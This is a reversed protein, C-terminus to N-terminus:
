TQEEEKINEAFKKGAELFIDLQERLKKDLLVKKTIDEAISIVVKKSIEIDTLGSLNHHKPLILNEKTSKAKNQVGRQQRKRSAPAITSERFGAYECLKLFAPVATRAVRDSVKYQSRFEDHLQDASLNYPEELEFLKKYANQIVERFGAQRKDESKLQVKELLNTGNGNEDILGLFRLSSIALATDSSGFGYPEFYNAKLGKIPRLSVIRLLEVLKPVSIYVPSDNKTNKEKDM